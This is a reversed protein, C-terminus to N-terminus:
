MSTRIPRSSVVSKIQLPDDTFQYAIFKRMLAIATAKEEGIKCKVMWLNPDKVGPLLGQQTIEDVM